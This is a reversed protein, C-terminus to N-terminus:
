NSVLSVRRRMNSGTSNGTGSSRFGPFGILINCGLQMRLGQMHVLMTAKRARSARMVRQSQRGLNMYALSRQCRADNCLGIYHVIDRTTIYTKEDDEDRIDTIKALHEDRARGAKIEGM